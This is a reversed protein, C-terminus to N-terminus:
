SPDSVQVVDTSDSVFPFDDVERWYADEDDEVEGVPIDGPRPAQFDGAVSGVDLPSVDALPPRAVCVTLADVVAPLATVGTVSPSSPVPPTVTSRDDGDALTQIGRSTAVFGVLAPGCVSSFM